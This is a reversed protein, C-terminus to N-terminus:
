PSVELMLRTMGTGDPQVGVVRWVNGDISLEADHDIASLDATRGLVTPKSSEMLGGLADAHPADFVVPVVVGGPLTADANSLRRLVASATRAELAAFPAAM